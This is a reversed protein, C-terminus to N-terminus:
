APLAVPYPFSIDNQEHKIPRGLGITSEEDEGSAEEMGNSLISTKSTRFSTEELNSGRHREKRVSGLKRHQEKGLLVGIVLM